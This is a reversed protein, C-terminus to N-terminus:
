VKASPLRRLWGNTRPQSPKPLTAAFRKAGQRFAGSASSLARDMEALQKRLENNATRVAQMPGALSGNARAAKGGSAVNYFDLISSNVNSVYGTSADIAQNFRDAAASQTAAAGNSPNRPVIPISPARPVVVTPPVTRETVQPTQPRAPAPNSVTQRVPTLSRVLERIGNEIMTKARGPAEWLNSGLRVIGDKTSRFLKYLKSALEKTTPVVVEVGFQALADKMGNLADGIRMAAEDIVDQNENAWWKFLAAVAIAAIVATTAVTADDVGAVAVRVPATPSTATPANLDTGLAENLSGAGVRGGVPNQNTFVQSAAIQSGAM